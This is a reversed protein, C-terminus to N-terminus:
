QQPVKADRVVRAWKDTELKIFAAFQEPTSSATDVGHEALRRQTDPASLMRTFDANLKAIIPKPVAAPACLGYWVTVEIPVGSETMTPVDPLHMSRKPSTVALARTRGSKMVALQSSMNDFMAQIHGGLLDIAPYIQM